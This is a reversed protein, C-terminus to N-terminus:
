SLILYDIVKGYTVDRDFVRPAFKVDHGFERIGFLALGKCGCELESLLSVRHRADDSVEQAEFGAEAPGAAKTWISCEKYCLFTSSSVRLTFLAFVPLAVIPLTVM